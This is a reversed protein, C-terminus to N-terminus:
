SLNEQVVGCITNNLYYFMINYKKNAAPTFVNSSVNTGIWKITGTPPTTATSGSTFNIQATFYKPIPSPNTITLSTLTGANYIKFNSLAITPAASSVTVEVYDKVIVPSVKQNGIYLYAM